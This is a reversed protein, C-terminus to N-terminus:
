KQSEKYLKIRDKVFEYQYLQSDFENKVKNYCNQSLRAYEGTDMSLADRMAGRLSDTSKVECIIGNEDHHIFETPGKINSVISPVGFAAAELAVSGFGERYSPFVFFDFAAYFKAPNSVPGTFHIKPHEKAKEFIKQNLRETEYYPGVIFLSVNDSDLSMFAELLENIGKEPVIRGVFGLLRDNHPIDYENRIEKRWKEKKLISFKKLDVGCASGHFIVNGKKRPYLNEATAFELNGFSDPQVRTSFLCTVKVMMKYFWKKIGTYDTYSIGWQCYIRVPVRALWSAISGYLAANSSTYQVIDFKEKKFVKYLIRVSKIVELPSVNGRSMKQPLYTIGTLNESDFMDSQECIIYSDFGNKAAYRLNDLMFWKIGQAKTAVGAIKIKKEM